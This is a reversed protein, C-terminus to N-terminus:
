NQRKNARKHWQTDKNVRYSVFWKTEITEAKHNMDIQVVAQFSVPFLM